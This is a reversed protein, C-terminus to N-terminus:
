GQTRRTKTPMSSSIVSEDYEDSHDNITTNITISNTMKVGLGAQVNVNKKRGFTRVEYAGRRAGNEDLQVRTVTAAERGLRRGSLNHVQRWAESPSQSSMVLNRAIGKCTDVLSRWPVQAEHGRDQDCGERSFGNMGVTIEQKEEPVDLFADWELSPNHRLHISSWNMWERKEVSFIKLQEKLGTKKKAAEKDRQQPCSKMVITNTNTNNSSNSYTSYNRRCNHEDNSCFLM